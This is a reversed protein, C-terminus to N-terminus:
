PWKFSMLVELIGILAGVMICAGSVATPSVLNSLCSMLKLRYKPDYSVPNGM